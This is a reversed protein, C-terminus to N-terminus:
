GDKKGLTGLVRLREEPTLKGLSVEIQKPSQKNAPVYVGFYGFAAIVVFLVWGKTDFPDLSPMVAGETTLRTVVASAVGVVVGMIAKATESLSKMQTM